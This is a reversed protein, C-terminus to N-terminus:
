CKYFNEDFRNMFSYPLLFKRFVQKRMDNDDVKYNEIIERVQFIVIM